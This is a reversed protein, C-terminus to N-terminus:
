EWMCTVALDDLGTMVASWDALVKQHDAGANMDAIAARTTTYVTNSKGLCTQTKAGANAAIWGKVDDSVVVKCSEFDLIGDATAELLLKAMDLWNQQLGLQVGKLTMDVSTKVAKLCNDLNNVPAQQRSIAFLALIVILIKM